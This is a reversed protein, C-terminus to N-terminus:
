ARDGKTVRTVEDLTTVGLIAQRYADQRMTPMGEKMATQKIDWTSARAHALARIPETTVLLEYIGSRGSYGVHRCARCGKARMLPGGAAEWAEVPFDHPLDEKKPHYPERCKTCLRRLLRQAM